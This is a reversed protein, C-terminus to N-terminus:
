GTMRAKTCCGAGLKRKQMMSFTQSIRRSGTSQWVLFSFRRRIAPVGIIRITRSLHIHGHSTQNSALAVLTRELAEALEKNGTALFGLASIMLDRTYPEPYGWGATRPLGQYPGHANHLLIQLAADKAQMISILSINDISM